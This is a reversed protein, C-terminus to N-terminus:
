AGACFPWDLGRPHVCARLCGDGLRFVLSKGAPQRKQYRPHLDIDYQTLPRHEDKFYAAIPSGSDLLFEDSGQISQLCFNLDRGARQPHVLYLTGGPAGMAACILGTAVEALRDLDLINSIHASYDHLAQAPNIRGGSVLRDSLQGALALLPNFLLAMAIALFLGAWLPNFRADQRFLAEIALYGATYLGVALLTVLAYGLSRRLILRVDPLRHSSAAWLVWGSALLYFTTGAAGYGALVLGGGATALAVVPWWYILRNRHLPQRSSRYALITMWVPIVSFVAWAALLAGSTFSARPLIWAPNQGLPDPLNVLLGDIAVLAAAVGLGALSPGIRFATRRLYCASLPIFLWALLLAGYVPFRQLVGDRLFALWGAQRAALALLLLAAFLAYAALALRLARDYVPRIVGFIAIAICLALGPIYVIFTPGILTPM